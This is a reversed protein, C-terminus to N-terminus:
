VCCWACLTREIVEALFEFDIQQLYAPPNWRRGVDANSPRSCQNDKASAMGGDRVQEQKCNCVIRNPHDNNGRGVRVWVCL